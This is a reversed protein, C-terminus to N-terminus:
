EWAESKGKPIFPGLITAWPQLQSMPGGPILQFQNGCQPCHWSHTTSGVRSMIVGPDIPCEFQQASMDFSGVYGEGTGPAYSM